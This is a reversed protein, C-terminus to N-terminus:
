EEDAPAEDVRDMQAGAEPVEDELRKAFRTRSM